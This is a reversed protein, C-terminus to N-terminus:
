ALGAIVADVGLGALVKDVSANVLPVLSTMKNLEMLNPAGHHQCLRSVDAPTIKSAKTAETIKDILGRFTIGGTDAAPPAPPVAGVAAVPPVPVVPPAPPTPVNDVGTPVSPPVPPVPVSSSGQPLLVPASAGKSAALEATVAALINKDLGKIVKWCGNKMKNRSKQHIRADWPMQAADLEVSAVTSVGAASPAPPAPPSAPAATGATPPPPPPPPPVNGTNTEEGDYGGEDDSNTGVPVPPPPPILNVVNSAPGPGTPPTPITQTSGAAGSAVATSAGAVTPTMHTHAALPNATGEDKLDGILHLLFGCANRIDEPSDTQTDIILQV